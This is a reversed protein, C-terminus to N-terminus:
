SGLDVRHLSSGCRASLDVLGRAPLPAEIWHLSCSTHTQSKRPFHTGGMGHREQCKKFFVIALNSIPSFFTFNLQGHDRPAEHGLTGIVSRYRVASRPPGTHGGM